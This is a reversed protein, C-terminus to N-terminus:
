EVPVRREFADRVAEESLNTAVAFAEVLEEDFVGEIELAMLREESLGMRERLRQPVEAEDLETRPWTYPELGSQSSSPVGRKSAAAAAALIESMHEAGGSTEIWSVVEGFSLGSEYDGTEYFRILADVSIGLLKALKHNIETAVRMPHVGARFYKQTTGITVGLEAALKRESLRHKIMARRLSEALRDYMARNKAAVPSRRVPKEM